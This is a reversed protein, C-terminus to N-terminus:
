PVQATVLLVQSEARSFPAGDWASRTEPKLFGSAGLVAALIDLGLPLLPTSDKLVTGDGLSLETDFSLRSDKRAAYSRRFEAGEVLMPPFAFGPSIREYNLVQLVIVGGPKLVKRAADMFSRVEDESALHPLTNGLCLVLDLSAPAVLAALDRMDGRVLLPTPGQSQVKGRAIADLDVSPEVATVRWGRGALAFAHGGTASGLDVADVQASRGAMLSALFTITAPNVPFLRDYLPALHAYLDM